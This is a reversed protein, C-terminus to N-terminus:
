RVTLYPCSLTLISIEVPDEIGIELGEVIKNTDDVVFTKRIAYRSNLNANIWSDINRSDGHLSRIVFKTFHKPIFSLKRLGLVSLPNVSGRNLSM